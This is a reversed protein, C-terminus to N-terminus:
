RTRAPAPAPRRLTSPKPLLIASFSSRWPKAPASGLTPPVLLAVAQGPRERANPTYPAMDPGGVNNVGAYIICHHHTGYWPLASM